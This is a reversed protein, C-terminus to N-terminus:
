ALLTIKWHVAASAGDKSGNEAVDELDIRRLFEGSHAVTGFEAFAECGLSDLNGDPLFSASPGVIFVIVIFLSAAM